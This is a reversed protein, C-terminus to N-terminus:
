RDYQRFWESIQLINLYKLQFLHMLFSPNGQPADSLPDPMTVAATHNWDRVQSGKPTPAFFSFPLLINRRSCAYRVAEYKSILERCHLSVTHSQPSSPLLCYSLSTAPFNLLPESVQMNTTLETYSYQILYGTPQPEGRGRFICHFYLSFTKGQLSKQRTSSNSRPNGQM